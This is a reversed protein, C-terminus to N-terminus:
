DRGREWAHAREYDKYLKERRRFERSHISRRKGDMAIGMAAHLMEHYVVFAIFYRPVTRKDLVPSIRILNSREGYSGLTRKRVVSRQGGTGWTVQANVMGEFYEENVEQYLERLDHCAGLTKIRVKKRPKATLKERNERVFVRFGPMAGKRKKLYVAIEELVRSGAHLFMRHLRVLLVGGRVRASLMSTSNETLVLSVTRGLHEELYQKLSHISHGSFLDLQTDTKVTTM